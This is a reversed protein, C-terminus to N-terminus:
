PQKIAQRTPPLAALVKNSIEEHSMHRVNRLRLLPMGAKELMHEVNADRQQRNESDHSSDDLEIALVPTRYGKNCIVYDVSKRDITSLAGKWSQGWIDGDLISSLHVQPFIYYDHGVIENLIEFFNNEAKTM